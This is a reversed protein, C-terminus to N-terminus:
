CGSGVDTSEIATGVTVTSLVAYMYPYFLDSMRTDHYSYLPIFICM